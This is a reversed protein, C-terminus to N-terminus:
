PSRRAPPRATQGRQMQPVPAPGMEVQLQLGPLPREGAGIDSHELPGGIHKAEELAAYSRGIERVAAIPYLRLRLASALQSPRVENAPCPLHGLKGATLEEGAGASAAPPDESPLRSASPSSGSVSGPQFGDREVPLDLPGLHDWRDTGVAGHAAALQHVHPVPLQDVDFAVRVGRDGPAIETGLSRGAELEGDIGVALGLAQM